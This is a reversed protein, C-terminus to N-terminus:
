PTLKVLIYGGTKSRGGRWRRSAEGYKGTNNRPANVGNCHHCRGTYNWRKTTHLQLWRQKGCDICAQWIFQESQQKSGIERGKKIEGIEPM